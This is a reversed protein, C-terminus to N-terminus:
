SRLPPLFRNWPAAWTPGTMPTPALPMLNTLSFFSTEIVKTGEKICNSYVRVIERIERVPKWGELEEELGEAEECLVAELETEEEEELPWVDSFFPGPPCPWSSASSTVNFFADIM